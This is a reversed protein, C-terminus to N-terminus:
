GVVIEVVVVVTEVVVVVVVLLLLLLLLSLVDGIYKAIVRSFMKPNEYYKASINSLFYAVLFAINRWRMENSHFSAIESFGITRERIVALFTPSTKQSVSETCIRLRVM